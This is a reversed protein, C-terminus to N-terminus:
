MSLELWTHKSDYESHTSYNGQVGALEVATRTSVLRRPTTWTSGRIGFCEIGILLGTTESRVLGPARRLRTSCADLAESSTRRTSKLADPTWQEPKSDKSHKSYDQSYKRPQMSAILHELGSDRRRIYHAIYEREM